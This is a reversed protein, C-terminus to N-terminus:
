PVVHVEKVIVPDFLQSYDFDFKVYTTLGPASGEVMVDVLNRIRRPSLMSFYHWDAHVTYIVINPYMEALEVLKDVLPQYPLYGLTTINWIDGEFGSSFIGQGFSATRSDGEESTWFGAHYNILVASINQADAMALSQDLWSLTCNKATEYMDIRDILPDVVNQQPRDETEDALYWQSGPVEITVVAAGCVETYVNFPCQESQTMVPHTGTLDTTLDDYFTDIFLQRAEKAVYFEASQNKSAARHCDNVENDGVTYLTPIGTDKMAHIPSLMSSANCVTSGSQTDGVHIMLDCSEAMHAVVDSWTPYPVTEYPACGATCVSCGEFLPPAVVQASAQAAMVMTLVAIMM